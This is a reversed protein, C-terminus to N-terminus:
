FYRAFIKGHDDALFIVSQNDEIKMTLILLQNNVLAVNINDLSYTPPIDNYSLGALFYRNNNLQFQFRGNNDSFNVLLGHQGLIEAAEAKTPYVGRYVGRQYGFVNTCTAVAWNNPIHTLPEFGFVMCGSTSNWVRYDRDLNYFESTPLGVYRFHADGLFYDKIGSLFTIAPIATWASFAILYWKLKSKRIFLIILSTLWFLLGLPLTFIVIFTFWSSILAAWFWFKIWRLEKDNSM